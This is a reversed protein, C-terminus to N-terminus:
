KKITNERTMALIVTDNMMVMVHLRGLFRKPNCKEKMVKILENVYIIFLFCSTSSGQRVGLTATVVASSVISETVRYMSVLAVLM